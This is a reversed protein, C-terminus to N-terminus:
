ESRLNMVPNQIAAKISQYAITILAIILILFLPILFLWVTIPIQFAYQDLWTNLLIFAVPIAIGGAIFILKMYDFSTLMFIQQVSAGLVKRISIERKRKSITYLSLGFLGLGAVVIALATFWWLVTSFLRDNKYQANFREDLFAYNFPSDPFRSVWAEKVSALVKNYDKTNLKLSFINRNYEQEPYFVIPDFSNRLSEQHYDKIVGIVIMKAPGGFYLDKGIMEAPNSIGFVKVATENLIINLTASRQSIASDTTFNRGAVLQLGYNPIFANDIGFVRCRKESKSQGMTFSSSGGVEQGPASTSSTVSSIEPMQKLADTFATISSMRSSDQDVNQFLLLTQDVQIGLDWSSMFRLQRYFGIAGTILIIAATFQIVVLSKRLFNNGGARTNGNSSKLAKVPQFASLVISPYLGAIIAGFAFFGGMILWFYSNAHQLDNVNKELLSAFYPLTLFYIILGLLISFLNVLTSETMFQKILQSRSAGIAKRIGVEHSRDIARATSLNIYNIWAIFIIIFAAIGLYTLYGQNGNGDLEYDYNSYLHIDSIPQLDFQTKFGKEKMESGMYKETFAPLKKELAKVDTGPKLLIYTYFDSWGWSNEADGGNAKAIQIYKEYNFLVTFTLHSNAPLDRLIGTVVYDENGYRITKQMPNEAGFYKRAATETLVVENLQSFVAASNGQVFPFSFISFVAKDAYFIPGSELLTNEGQRIVGGQRRFRVMKEIEPYDKLLSPGVAPFTFAFTQLKEGKESVQMPVRFIRERNEHFQDFSYEFRLYAIILLFAAIGLSLGTINIFSFTKTKWFNRWGSKIDHKNM